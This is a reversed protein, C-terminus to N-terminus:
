VIAWFVSRGDVSHHIGWNENEGGSKSTSGEESYPIEGMCIGTIIKMFSAFAQQLNTISRVSKATTYSYIHNSGKEM